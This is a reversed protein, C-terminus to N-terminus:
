PLVHYDFLNASLFKGMSHVGTYASISSAGYELRHNNYLYDENSVPNPHFLDRYSQGELDICESMVKNIDNRIEDLVDKNKPFITSVALIRDYITLNEFWEQIHLKNADYKM